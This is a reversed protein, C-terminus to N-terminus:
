VDIKLKLIKFLVEAAGLMYLLRDLFAFDASRLEEERVHGIVFVEQNLFRSAAHVTAAAVASHNVNEILLFKMM